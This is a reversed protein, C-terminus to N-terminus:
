PTARPLPLNQDRPPRLRSDYHRAAGMARAPSFVWGGNEAWGVLALIGGISFGLSGAIIAGAGVTGVAPSNTPKQIGAILLAIGAIMAGTSALMTWGGAHNLAVASAHADHVEKAAHNAGAIRYFSEEDIPAMGQYLQGPGVRLPEGTNQAGTWPMSACGSIFVLAAAFLAKM